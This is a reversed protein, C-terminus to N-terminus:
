GGTMESDLLVDAVGNLVSIFCSMLLASLGDTGSAIVQAGSGISGGKPTQTGPGQSEM